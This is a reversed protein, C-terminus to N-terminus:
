YAGANPKTGFLYNLGFKVESIQQRYGINTTTFVPGSAVGLITNTFTVTHHGFNLYDYEGKISWNGFLAWEVGAGVTWGIRTEAGARLDFPAFVTSSSDCTNVPPPGLSTTIHNCCTTTVGGAFHNKNGEWAAGAKGYILGQNDYAVAYGFRATATALFDTMASLTGSSTVTTEGGSVTGALTISGNQVNSGTMRTWAGDAEVGIVFRAFQLNCGAQGGVLAGSSDAHFSTESITVTTQPVFASAPIVAVFPGETFDNNAFAGGGHGGLYCGTWTFAAHRPGKYYSYYQPESSTRPLPRLVEIEAAVAPAAVFATAAVVALRKMVGGVNWGWTMGARGFAQTLALSPFVM